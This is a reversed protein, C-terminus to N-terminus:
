LVRPEWTRWDLTEEVFRLATTVEDHGRRLLDRVDAPLPIRRAQLYRSEAAQEQARVARLAQEPDGRAALITPADDPPPVSEGYRRLVAGLADIHREHDQRLQQLNADLPRVEVDLLAQDCARLASTETRVLSRLARIGDSDIM